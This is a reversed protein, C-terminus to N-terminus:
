HNDQEEEISYSPNKLVRQYNYFVIGKNSITLTDGNQQIQVQEGPKTQQIQIQAWLPLDRESFLCEEEESIKANNSVVEAGNFHVIGNTITLTDGGNMSQVTGNMGYERIENLAWNPLKSWFIKRTM